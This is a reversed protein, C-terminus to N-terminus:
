FGVHVPWVWRDEVGCESAVGMVVGCGRVVGM